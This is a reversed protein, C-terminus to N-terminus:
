YRPIPISSATGIALHRARKKEAWTINMAHELKEVVMDMHSRRQPLVDQHTGLPLEYFIWHICKINSLSGNHVYSERMNKPTICLREANTNKCKYTMKTVEAGLRMLAEVEDKIMMRVQERELVLKIIMQDIM